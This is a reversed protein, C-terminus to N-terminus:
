ADVPKPDNVHDYILAAAVRFARCYLAAEDKTFERPSGADLRAQLILRVIHDAMRGILLNDM